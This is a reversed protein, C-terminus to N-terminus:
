RRPTYIRGKRPSTIYNSSFMRSSFHLLGSIGYKYQYSAVPVTPILLHKASNDVKKTRDDIMIKCINMSCMTVKTLTECTQRVLMVARLCLLFWLGTKPFAIDTKAIFSFRRYLTNQYNKLM